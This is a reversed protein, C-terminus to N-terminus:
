WSGFHGMGKDKGERNGKLSAAMGSLRENETSACVAIGVWKDVSDRLSRVIKFAWTSPCQCARIASVSGMHACLMLGECHASRVCDGARIRNTSNISRCCLAALNADIDLLAM